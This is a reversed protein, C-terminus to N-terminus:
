SESSKGCCISDRTLIEFKFQSTVRDCKSINLHIGPFATLLSQISHNSIKSGSLYLSRLCPLHSILFPIDSDSIIPVDVTLHQLAPCSHYITPLSDHSISFCELLILTEFDPFKKAFLSAFLTDHLCSFFLFHIGISHM